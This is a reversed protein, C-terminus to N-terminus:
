AGSQEIVLDQEGQDRVLAALQDLTEALVERDEASCRGQTLYHAADDLLWQAKRLIVALKSNNSFPAAPQSNDKAEDTAAALRLLCASCPACAPAKGSDPPSSPDAAEEIDATRFKLRCWSQIEHNESNPAACHTVRLSEVVIGPKCQFWTAQQTSTDVPPRWDKLVVALASSM